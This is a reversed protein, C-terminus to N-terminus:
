DHSLENTIADYVKPLWKNIEKDPIGLIQLLRRDLEVRAWSREKFQESLSPFECEKLKDYLELLETKQDETLLEIDIIDFLVLDSEMIESYGGTTQKRLMILNVIGIVSNLCLTNIKADDEELFICKFADPAIFKKDSYFVFLSTNKSNPRFRRAIAMHTWKGKMNERVINYPFKDKEKFKSLELVKKWGKFEKTIIYDGTDTIDFRNIDTLTRLAPKLYEKKIKFTESPSNKVYFEVPDKEDDKLILFARKLRNKNFPNNIFSIRSINKPSTQFGSIIESRKLKRLLHGIKEKILSKFEIIVHASKATSFGFLPMLNDINDKLYRYDYDVIILNKESTSTEGKEIYKVINAADQLTLEHINENLIVFRTKDGDSPKKKRAVLLIDKFNAKESFAINKGTRIVYEIKYNKILHKRIKETAKGRFINIPLVAAIKGGPKVLYDSLALFYGWLNISHGCINGLIKNEKLKERMDEPINKRNSFPPNMIVVDAPKLYFEEGKGEPSVTGGAEKQKSAGFLTKQMSVTYPSLKIGKDKFEENRLKRALELSDKTVVRVTNTEEKINQTALNITTIHAAFPMIDIGTLDEELFKKHMKDFNRYGYLKKYLNQKRKYSSVLLTGSGCAPDIVKEDWSDISLGALIEAAIPHTYFAALVKRVEQPILDHFFRGALDHTIHEARLSKIANILDNLTEIVEQKNPIYGLINVKYISKYNISTIKDFYNQLDQIKEIEKLEPLFDHKTKRKFIHYFLLQNFLLYSALNIIQRETKEKDEIESIAFFLDLKDVVESILQDSKIQYIVSNLDKVYDEILKVVTNFDIKPKKAIIREKLVKFVQAPTESLSETWYDTLILAQVEEELAIRQPDIHDLITQGKLKEPYVLVIMNQTKLRKAYDYVQAMADLTIEVKGIKVEIVFSASNYKFLIDPHKGAVQTEGVAKFGLDQLYSILPPYLTREEIKPLTM